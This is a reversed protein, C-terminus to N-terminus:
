LEGGKNNLYFMEYIWIAILVIVASIALLTILIPFSFLLLERM